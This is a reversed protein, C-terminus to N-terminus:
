ETKDGENIPFPIIDPNKEENDNNTPIIGNNLLVQLALRLGDAMGQYRAANAAAEKSGNECEVIGSQINEYAKKINM